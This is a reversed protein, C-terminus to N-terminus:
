VCTTLFKTGLIAIVFPNDLWNGKTYWNGFINYSIGDRFNSVVQLEDRSLRTKITIPMLWTTVIDCRCTALLKMMNRWNFLNNCTFTGM